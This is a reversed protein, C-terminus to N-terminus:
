RTTVAALPALLRETNDSVVDKLAFDVNDAADEEDLSSVFAYHIELYTRNKGPTIEAKAWSSNVNFDNVLKLNRETPDLFDFKLFLHITGSDYVVTDILIDDDCGKLSVNATFELKDDTLAEVHFAIHESWLNNILEYVRSLRLHSM